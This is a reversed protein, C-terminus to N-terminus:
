EGNTYKCIFTHTQDCPKTYWSGGTVNMIVCKHVLPDIVPENEGWNTYVTPWGDSWEFTKLNQLFCPFKVARPPLPHPCSLYDFVPIM